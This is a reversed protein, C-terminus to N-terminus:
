EEMKQPLFLTTCLFHTLFHTLAFTLGPRTNLHPLQPAQLRLFVNLHPKTQTQVNYFCVLQAGPSPAFGGWLLPNKPVAKQLLLSPCPYYPM